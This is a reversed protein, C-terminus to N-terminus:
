KIVRKKLMKKLIRKYFLYNENKRYLIAMIFTPYLFSITGIIILRLIGGYLFCNCIYHSTIASFFIIILYKFYVSFYDKLKFTLSENSVVLPELWFNTCLSSVITGIFVVAVGYIKVFLIM